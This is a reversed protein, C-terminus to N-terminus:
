RYQKPMHLPFCAEVQAASAADDVEVWDDQVLSYVCTEKGSPPVLPVGTGPIPQGNSGWWRVGSRFTAKESAMGYVAETSRTPHECLECYKTRWGHKRTWRSFQPM